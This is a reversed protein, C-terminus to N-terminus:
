IKRLKFGWVKKWRSPASRKQRTGIEITVAASPPSTATGVMSPDSALTFTGSPVCDPLCNRNFCFPM